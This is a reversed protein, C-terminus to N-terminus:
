IALVHEIVSRVSEGFETISNDEYDVFVATPGPKRVAVAGKGNIQGLVIYEGDDTRSEYAETIGALSLPGIQVGNCQELFDSYDLPLKTEFQKLIAARDSAKLPPDISNIGFHHAYRQLWEPLTPVLDSPQAAQLPPEFIEVEVSVGAVEAPPPSDYEISSVQGDVIHVTAVWSAGNKGLRARALRWERGAMPLRIARDHVVRGASIVYLGVECGGVRRQVYNIRQKQARFLEGLSPGLKAEVASLIREEVPRLPPVLWNFLTRPYM